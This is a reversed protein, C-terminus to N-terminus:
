DAWGRWGAAELRARQERVESPALPWWPMAPVRDQVPGGDDCAPLRGARRLAAMAPAESSDEGRAPAAAPRGHAAPGDLADACAPPPRWAVQERMTGASQRMRKAAGRGAAAPLGHPVRAGAPDTQWGPEAERRRKPNPRAEPRHHQQQHPQQPAAAAAPAAPPSRAATARGPAEADRPTRPLTGTPAKAPAAPRPAAQCSAPQVASPTASLAAQGGAQANPQSAPPQQAASAVPQPPPAPALEKLSPARTPEASAAEQEGGGGAAQPQQQGRAPELGAASAQTVSPAPLVVAVAAAPAHPKDAQARSGVEAGAPPALVSTGGAGSASSPAPGAASKAAALNRKIKQLLPSSQLSRQSAATAAGSSQQLRQQSPLPQKQQQQQQHHSPLPQQEQCVDQRPQQAQQAQQGQQAYQGRQAHQAQQGAPKQVQPQQAPASTAEAEDQREPQKNVGNASPRRETRSPIGASPLAQYGGKERPESGPVRAAARSPLAAAAAELAAPLPEAAGDAALAEEWKAALEEAAAAVGAHASGQLRGVAATLQDNKRATGLPLADLATLAQRQLTYFEQQQAEGLWSELTALFGAACPCRPPAARPAARPKLLTCPLCLSAHSALHSTLRCPWAPSYLWRTWLCRM